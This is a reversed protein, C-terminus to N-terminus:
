VGLRYILSNHLENGRTHQSVTVSAVGSMEAKSVEAYGHTQTMSLQHLQDMLQATGIGDYGSSSDDNCGSNKKLGWALEHRPLFISNSETFPDSDEADYSQSLELNETSELSHDLDSEQIAKLNSLSVTLRPKTPSTQLKLSSSCLHLFGGPTDGGDDFCSIKDSQSNLEPEKGDELSCRSDHLATVMEIFINDRNTYPTLTDEKLSSALKEEAEKLADSFEDKFEKFSSMPLKNEIVHGHQLDAESHQTSEVEKSGGILEVDDPELVKCSEPELNQGSPYEVKHLDGLSKIYDSRSFVQEDTSACSDQM